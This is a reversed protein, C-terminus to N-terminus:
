VLCSLFGLLLGEHAAALAPLRAALTQQDGAELREILKQAVRPTEFWTKVAEPGAEPHFMCGVAREGFRSATLDGSPGLALAKGGQAVGWAHQFFGSSPLGRSFWADQQGAATPEIPAIGFRSTRLPVLRGGTARVLMQYGFCIALLPTGEEVRAGLWHLLPATWPGDDLPSGPGGSALVAEVRGPLSEGRRVDICQVTHGQSVAARELEGVGLNEHGENFDLLTICAVFEM